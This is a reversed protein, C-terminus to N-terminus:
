LVGWERYALTPDYWAGSSATLRFRLFSVSSSVTPVLFLTRWRTCEDITTARASEGGEGREEGKHEEHNDGHRRRHSTLLLSFCVSSRLISLCSSLPPCASLSRRPLYKEGLPFLPPMGAFQIHGGLSLGSGDHLVVLHTWLVYMCVYVYEVRVCFLMWVYTWIAVHYIPVKEDHVLSLSAARQASNLCVSLTRGTLKDACLLFRQVM